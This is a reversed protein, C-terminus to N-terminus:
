CEGDHAEASVFQEEVILWTGDIRELLYESTNAGCDLIEGDSFSYRVVATVAAQDHDSDDDFEVQEPDQTREVSSVDFGFAAEQDDDAWRELTDEWQAIESECDEVTPMMVRADDSVLGDVAACNDQDIMAAYERVVVEPGVDDRVSLALYVVVLVIPVGLTVAVAVYKWARLRSPEEDIEDGDAVDDVPEPEDTM